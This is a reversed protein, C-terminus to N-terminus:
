MSEGASYVRRLPRALGVRAPVPVERAREKGVSVESAVSFKGLLGDDSSLELHAPGMTAPAHLLIPVVSASSTVLPITTEVRDFRGGNWRASLVLKDTPKVAFSHPSLNKLLLYAYFPAEAQVPNPVYVVTSMNPGGRVTEVRYVWTSGFQRIFTLGRSVALAHNLDDRTEPAFQDIHVFLYKIDLAALLALARDNPLKDMEYAIEGRRPPVFGSYGDPSSQWHYASYYQRSLDLQNGTGAHLMPLELIVGPPQQALWQYEPPIDRAVAMPVINAAPLNMYELAVLGLALLTASLLSRRRKCLPSMSTLNVFGFAALLAIALMVLSDFRVPARLARMVGVREYLWAYPLGLNTPLDPALYLRPGLSLVFAVIFLLIAFGRERPSRRALMGILALTLAMLGPFLSDLPYGGLYIPPTPALLKGFILNTPEVQTYQVLSASFPESESMKREFGLERQVQFYPVLFPAVFLGVLLAAVGLWVVRKFGDSRLAAFSDPGEAHGVARRDILASFGAWLLYLGVALASFFGYYISALTQLSFLLAFLFSDRLNPSRIGRRLSILALPLFGLWLLQEQALNGLNYPNFSYIAGALIAASRSRTLDLTFLYMAFANLVFAALLVLNYGFIPNNTAISIPLAILAQPLNVESFAITNAYPYFINGQFIDLPNTILAHGVSAIIWTNLLADQRDEVANWLHLILPNTLLVTLFFFIALAPLHRRSALSTLLRDTQNLTGM